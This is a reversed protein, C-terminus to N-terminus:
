EEKKSNGYMKLWSLDYILTTLNQLSLQNLAFYKEEFDKKIAAETDKLFENLEATLKKMNLKFEDMIKQRADDASVSEGNAKANAAANINTKLIKGLGNLYKATFQLDKFKTENEKAAGIQMLMMLDDTNKLRRGSFETLKETEDKVKKSIKM